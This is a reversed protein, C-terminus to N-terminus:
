ERELMQRGNQAKVERESQHEPKSGLSVEAAAMTPAAESSPSALPLPQAAMVVTLPKQLVMEMQTGVPLDIADGRGFFVKFLGLGGGLGGIRAATGLQGGAAAYIAGPLIGITMTKVDKDIQDVPEITGDPKVRRIRTSGPLGQLIGSIPLVRDDPLIISTFQLHFRAKGKIRGPRREHQVIGMVRTHPPVVVRDAQVVPIFTELYVQSGATASTTHLANKLQMLVHTGAPITVSQPQLAPGDAVSQALAFPLTLILFSLVFPIRKM